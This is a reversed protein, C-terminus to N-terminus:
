GIHGGEPPQKRQEEEQRKKEEPTQAKPQHQPQPKAEPQPKENPAPREARSPPQNPPEAAPHNPEPRNAEPRNNPAPQPRNAPPAAEPRENRAPPERNPEPRNAEPRNDPQNPEPRDAEPRNNPEPRNPEPRAEPRNNPEPRNAEPRNNPTPQDPRNAPQAAEPRENRAPPEAPRNAEPRNNPEPRNAEPRNNPAPQNPEPRNAPPAAEPRENRAPPETPRNPEPRNGEPRNNPEPRNTPEPRNAAPRNNEPQNPNPQNPRNAEPRNNPAPQNGPRPQAPQAAPRENNGAPPQNAARAVPTAPKAPPAQRVKPQTQAAAPAIKQLEPRPLPQGPNQQLAKERASFAPPAPPPTNKAIVQRAQVARPPAAVRNATNAHVGLVAQRAPAVAARSMVGVTSVQRANVQVANRAVPEASSFARQPVATVAGQVNRNVYTVNNITTSNKVITTNYVNTIVTRNVNTNTINVQQVYRPGVRYPPVYVERPGLPFWGIAGGFADGGVFAVLAPAYVPRVERPGPVWGWRGQMFAWRGYHFPAYGWPEDDVWSYGWPEIWAWHGDRYPAWGASVRPFWVNGYEPYPRWDGYDDLDELGVVGPSCYQASRARDYRAERSYSWNDFDDPGGLQDVEANLQNTGSLTMRQGAHITYSQGNGTSEGEGQRISVVTYNGDESAEIRYLGPQYITLAQNPTDIEYVNDRDLARVRVDIVGSSLDIQTTRDDLNLFSFGTNQGLRISSSGLEVEARSNQDAWIKDGITMPRNQTAEVWESEGAPEFSVSGQAYSLRAARSPPDYQDQAYQGQDQDQSYQDQANATLILASVLITLVIGTHALVRNIKPIRRLFNRGM